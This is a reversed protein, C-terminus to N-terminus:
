TRGQSFSAQHYPSQSQATLERPLAILATVARYNSSDRFPRSLMVTTIPSLALKV